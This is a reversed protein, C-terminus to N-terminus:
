KLFFAIYPQAIKVQETQGRSNIRQVSEVSVQVADGPQTAMSALNIVGDTSSGKEVARGGRFLVYMITTVRYNAEKPLTNMFIEDSKAMVRLSAVSTIPNKYDIVESNTNSLYLSPPPVPIVNFVKQGMDKGGSSISLKCVGLNTPRLTIDGLRDGPIASGNDVSFIPRYALGLAPVSTEIDNGCNRYLPNNIANSVILVPQVVEYEKRITFTTDRGRSGVTVTGQWVQAGRGMATFEVEGVGNEDVRIPSGNYTMRAGLKSSTATIFMQARYDQGAVVIDSQASAGVIIRDFKVERSLDSAGLKKLVEQQYRIIELQRQTLIAIAAVVSAEGFQATPFDKEKEILNDQYLAIDKNDKAISEFLVNFGLSKDRVFTINLYNVYEDLAKKLDYGKGNKDKGVMFNAVAKVEQSNRIAGTHPDIGSRVEYALAKKIKGIENFIKDTERQLDEAKNISSLGEPSNGEKEVKKKLQELANETAYRMGVIAYELSQNLFIFKEVDAVNVQQSYLFTPLCICLILMLIKVM